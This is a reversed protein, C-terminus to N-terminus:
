LVLGLIGAAEVMDGKAAVSTSPMPFRNCDFCTLNRSLMTGRVPSVLEEKDGSPTPTPGLKGSAQSGIL